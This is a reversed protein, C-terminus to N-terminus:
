SPSMAFFNKFPRTKRTKARALMDRMDDSACCCKQKAKEYHFATIDPMHISKDHREEAYHLNERRLMAEYIDDKQRTDAGLMYSNMM